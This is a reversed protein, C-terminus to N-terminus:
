LFLFCFIWISACKKNLSNSHPLLLQTRGIQYHPQEIIEKIIDNQNRKPHCQGTSQDLHDLVSDHIEIPPHCRRITCFSPLHRVLCCVHRRASHFAKGQHFISRHLYLVSQKYTYFAERTFTRNRRQCIIASSIFSIPRTFFRNLYNSVFSLYNSLIVQCIKMAYCLVSAYTTLALLM